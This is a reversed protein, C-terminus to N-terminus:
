GGRVGSYESFIGMVVHRKADQWGAEKLAQVITEPPVCADITDWYYRMLKKSEVSKVRALNPVVGQMYLKLASRGLSSAPRTIELLLVRGGPKLVRLYEEFARRLDAVHRLAYGMTLLDFSHDAFPLAEGLGMCCQEVGRQRAESLMGRSPDLAVVQGEPGVMDQALASIVGTGAGVDLVRQGNQCGARLLAQNRYWRGSGFSMVDTISDYDGATSDFLEDVAARRDAATDYYEPLVPHPSLLTQDGRSNSPNMPSLDQTAGPM